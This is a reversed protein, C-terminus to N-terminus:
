QRKPVPKNLQILESRCFEYLTREIDNAPKYDELFQMLMRKADSRAYFDSRRVSYCLAFHGAADLDKKNPVQNLVSRFYGAAKDYHALAEKAEAQLAKVKEVAAKLAPDNWNTKNYSGAMTRRAQTAGQYAARYELDAAEFRPLLADKLKQAYGFHTHALRRTCILTAEKQMSRQYSMVAADFQGRSILEDGEKVLAMAPTDDLKEEKITGSKKAFREQAARALALAKVAYETGALEDAAKFWRLAVAYEDSAHQGAYAQAEEFMKKQKAMSMTGDDAPEEKPEPKKPEPPKVTPPPDKKGSDATGGGTKMDGAAGKEKQIENIINSTTFKRAWYLATNVEVALDTESKGATELLTMAKELKVVCQAYEKPDLTIGSGKQLISNAEDKLQKAEEEPGAWVPAAMVGLALLMIALLLRRM